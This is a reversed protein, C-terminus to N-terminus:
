IVLLSLPYMAKNTCTRAHAMKVSIIIIYLLVFLLTLQGLCMTQIAQEMKELPAWLWQRRRRDKSWLEQRRVVCQLRERRKSHGLRAVM